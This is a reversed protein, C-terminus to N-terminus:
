SEERARLMADAMAYACKANMALTAFGAAEPHTSRELCALWGQMALGAFWDRLTMGLGCTEGGSEREWTAPYAPGGNEKSPKM